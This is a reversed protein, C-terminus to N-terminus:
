NECHTNKLRYKSKQSFNQEVSSSPLFFHYIYQNKLHTRLVLSSITIYTQNDPDKIRVIEEIVYKYAIVHAEVNLLDIEDTYYLWPM